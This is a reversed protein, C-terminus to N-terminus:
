AFSSLISQARYLRRVRDGTEIRETAIDPHESGLLMLVKRGPDAEELMAELPTPEAGSPRVRVNWQLVQQTLKRWDPIVQRAPVQFGSSIVDRPLVMRLPLARAGRLQASWPVEIDDLPFPPEGDRKGGGVHMSAGEIESTACRVMRDVLDSFAMRVAQAGQHILFWRTVNITMDTARKRSYRWFPKFMRVAASARAQLPDGSTRDEDALDRGGGRMEEECYTQYSVYLTDRQMAFDSTLQQLALEKLGELLADIVLHLVKQLTPLTPVRGAKSVATRMWARVVNHVPGVHQVVSSQLSSLATEMM